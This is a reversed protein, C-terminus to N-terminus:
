VEQEDHDDKTGGIGEIGRPSLPESQPEDFVAICLAARDGRSWSQESPTWAVWSAEEPLLGTLRDSCFELAQDTVEGVGPYKALDFNLQTFVEGRHREDCRVVRTDQVNGDNGVDDLCMGPVIQAASMQGTEGLTAFNLTDDAVALTASWAIGVLLMVGAIIAIWAVVAVRPGSRLVSRPEQGPGGTGLGAGRGSTGPSPIGAADATNSTGGPPTFDSTM